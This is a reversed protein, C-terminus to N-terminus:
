PAFPKDTRYRELSEVRYGPTPMAKEYLSSHLGEGGRRNRRVAIPTLHVAPIAPLHFILANAVLTEQQGAVPCERYKGYHSFTAAQHRM